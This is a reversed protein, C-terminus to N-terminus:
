SSPAHTIMVRAARALSALRAPNHLALLPKPAAIKAGAVYIKSVGPFAGRDGRTFTSNLTALDALGVATPWPPLEGSKYCNSGSQVM